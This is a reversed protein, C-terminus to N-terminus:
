GNNTTIEGCDIGTIGEINAVSGELVTLKQIIIEALQRINHITALNDENISVENEPMRYVEKQTYTKWLNLKAILM